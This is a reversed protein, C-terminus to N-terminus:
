NINNYASIAKSVSVNPDFPSLDNIELPVGIALQPRFGGYSLPMRDYPLRLKNEAILSRVKEKEEKNILKSM